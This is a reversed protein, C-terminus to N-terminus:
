VSSHSTGFPGVASARCSESMVSLGWGKRGLQLAVQSIAPDPSWLRQYSKRIKAYRRSLVPATQKCAAVGFPIQSETVQEYREMQREDVIMALFAISSLEFRAVYLRLKPPLTLFTDPSARKMLQNLKMIDFANTTTSDGEFAFVILLYRPAWYLTSAETPWMLSRGLFPMPMSKSLLKSGVYSTIGPLSFTIRSSFAAAFSASM